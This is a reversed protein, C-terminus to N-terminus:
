VCKFSIWWELWCVNKLFIWDTYAGIFSSSIKWYFLKVSHIFFNWCFVMNKGGDDLRKCQSSCNHSKGCTFYFRGVRRCYGLIFIAGAIQYINKWKKLKKKLKIKFFTTHTSCNKLDCLLSFTNSQIPVVVILSKIMNLAWLFAKLEFLKLQYVM